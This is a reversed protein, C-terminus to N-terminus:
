FCYWCYVVLLGSDVIVWFLWWVLKSFLCFNVIVVELLYGVFVFLAKGCLLSFM